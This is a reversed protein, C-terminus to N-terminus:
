VAATRRRRWVLGYVLINAVLVLLALGIQLQSTLAAPYILPVLYHEVFSGSYDAAGAARRLSNELPTLPCIRGTAEVFVAWAAAPLHLAPAWRWWLAWLGGAIAFVIFGLHLLLIADAMLRTLM